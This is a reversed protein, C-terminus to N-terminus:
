SSSFAVGLTFIAICLTVSVPEHVGPCWEVNMKTDVFAGFHLVIFLLWKLYIRFQGPM